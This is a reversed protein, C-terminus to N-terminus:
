AYHVIGPGCACQGNGGIGPSIWKQVTEIFNSYTIVKFSASNNLMRNFEEATQVAQKDLHYCFLGTHVFSYKHNQLLAEALLQNRFLQNYRSAVLDSYSSKFTTSKRFIEEYEDKKYDFASFTDTYKCEFGILGIRIGAEVEFAVDFASNDNTYREEPAYEFMVRRLSTIEPWWNQLIKLGLETDMM